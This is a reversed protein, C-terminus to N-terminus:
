NAYLSNFTIVNKLLTHNQFAEEGEGKLGGTGESGQGM